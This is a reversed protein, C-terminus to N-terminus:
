TFEIIGNHNFFPAVEIGFQQAVGWMEEIKNETINGRGISFSEHREAFALVAAELLCGHVITPDPYTYMKRMGSPIFRNGGTSSGMGGAFIWKTNSNNGIINKPYGADCIVANEKCNETLWTPNEVSAVCIIVDHSDIDKQVETSIQVEDCVVSVEEKLSELRKQNQAALTLSAVKNALYRTCGIGIDGTAGIILVSQSNLERKLKTMIKEIGKVILASTLTNGTTLASKCDIENTNGEILISTFGGLTAVGTNYKDVVNVAKRIKEINAKLNGRIQDGPPIFTEVYMGKITRDSNPDKFELGFMRRSPIYHYIQKLDQISIESLEPERLEAILTHAKDWTEVHGIFAFDLKDDM